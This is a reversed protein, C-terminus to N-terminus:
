TSPAFGTSTSDGRICRPRPKRAKEALEQAIEDGRENQNREHIPLRTARQRVEGPSKGSRRTSVDNRFIAAPTPMAVFMPAHASWPTM